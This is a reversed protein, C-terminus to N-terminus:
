TASSYGAPARITVIGYPLNTSNTNGNVAAFLTGTSNDLKLATILISANNSLSQSGYEFYGQGSGVYCGAFATSGHDNVVATAEWPGSFDVRATFWRDTPNPLGQQQKAISCSQGASPPLQCHSNYSCFATAINGSAIDLIAYTASVPQVPVSIHLIVRSFNISIDYVGFGGDLLNAWGTSNTLTSQLPTTQRADNCYGVSEGNISAGVVPSGGSLVRLMVGITEGTVTCITTNSTSNSTQVGQRQQGALYGAGGSLVIAITLVVAVVQNKM